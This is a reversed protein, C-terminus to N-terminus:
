GTPLHAAVPGPLGSKVVILLQLRHHFHVGQGVSLMCDNALEAVREDRWSDVYLM